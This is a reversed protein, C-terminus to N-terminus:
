NRISNHSSFFFVFCTQYSTYKLRLKKPERIQMTVRSSMIMTKNQKNETYKNIRLDINIIPNRQLAMSKPENIKLKSLIAFIHALLYFAYHSFNLSFGQITHFM